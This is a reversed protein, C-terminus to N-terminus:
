VAHMDNCAAEPCIMDSQKELDKAKMGFLVGAAIGAVGVVAVGIAAKRMGTFTGPAGEPGPEDSGSPAPTTPTTKPTVPRPQDTTPGHPPTVAHQLDELRKFRPVEVSEKQGESTITVK